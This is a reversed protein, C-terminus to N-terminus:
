KDFVFGLQVAALPWVLGNRTTSSRDGSWGTRTESEPISRPRQGPPVQLTDTVTNYSLLNLRPRLYRCRVCRTM